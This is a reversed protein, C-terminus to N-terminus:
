WASQREPTYTDVLLSISIFGPKYPVVFYGWGSNSVLTRPVLRTFINDMFRYNGEVNSLIPPGVTIVPEASSANIIRDYCGCNNTCDIFALYGFNGEVDFNVQGQAAEVFSKYILDGKNTFVYFNGGANQNPLSLETSAL